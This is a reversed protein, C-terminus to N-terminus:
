PLSFFHLGLGWRSLRRGVREGAKELMESCIRAEQRFAPTIAFADHGETTRTQLTDAIFEKAARETLLYKRLKKTGTIKKGLTVRWWAVRKASNKPIVVENEDLKVISIGSTKAAM